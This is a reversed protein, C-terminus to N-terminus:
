RAGDAQLATTASGCPDCIYREGEVILQGGCNGCRPILEEPTLHEAAADRILEAGISCLNMPHERCTFCGDLHRHFAETATLMNM